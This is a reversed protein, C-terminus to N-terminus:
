EHALALHQLAGPRSVRKPQDLAWSMGIPGGACQVVLTVDDLNLYDMLAAFRRAQADPRYDIHQPKDSLGYGLLDPAICRYNASLDTILHRYLYSWTPNGHLFVIPRGRGHDVYSMWGDGTDFQRTAFPYEVTNLWPYSSETSFPM